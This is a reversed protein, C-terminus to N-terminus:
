ISFTLRYRSIPKGQPEAPLSDAWKTPSRPKIGPNPLAGPTSFPEWELIRAQLIGHVVTWLTAPDSLVLCSECGVAYQSISSSEAISMVLNEPINCPLIVRSRHQTSHKAALGTQSDECQTKGTCILM